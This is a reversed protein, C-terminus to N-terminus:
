SPTSRSSCTARRPWRTARGPARPSSSSTPQCRRRRRGRARGDDCCSGTARGRGPWSRASPRRRAAARDGAAAPVPQARGAGVRRRHLECRRPREAGRPGRATLERPSRRTRASRAREGIGAAQRAGDRLPQRTRVGVRGTGHTGAGRGPAGPRGGGRDAADRRGARPQPYDTSTCATPGRRTSRASWTRGCRTPWTRSSRRSCAALDDAGRAADRLRRAQRRGARGELVPAPQPPRVLELPRRRVGRDGAGRAADYGDLAGRVEAVLADLRSLIWRDLLRAPATSGM